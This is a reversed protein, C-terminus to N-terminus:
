FNQGHTTTPQFWPLKFVLLELLEYDQYVHIITALLNIFVRIWLRLSLGSDESKAKVFSQKNILKYYENM